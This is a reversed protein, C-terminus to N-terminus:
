HDNGRGMRERIIEVLQAKQDEDLISYFELFLDVHDEVLAPMEKVSEKVLTAVRVLDPDERDTESRLKRFFERRHEIGETLHSQIKQRIEEYEQMQAESLDLQDVGKDLRRLIHESFDHGPFRPHFGGGHWRPHFSGDCFWPHGSGALAAIGALLGLSLVVAGIIFHKKQLKM